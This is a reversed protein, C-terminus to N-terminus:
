NERQGVLALLKKVNKRLQLAHHPHHPVPFLPTSFKPKRLKM